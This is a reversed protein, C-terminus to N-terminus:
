GNHMKPAAGWPLGLNHISWVDVKDKVASKNGHVHLRSGVEWLSMNPGDVGATTTSMALVAVLRRGMCLGGVHFAWQLNVLNM